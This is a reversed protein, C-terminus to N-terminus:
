LADSQTTSVAQVTQAQLDNQIDSTDDTIRPQNM